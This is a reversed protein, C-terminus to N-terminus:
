KKCYFFNNVTVICTNKEYYYYYYYCNEKNTKEPSTHCHGLLATHTNKHHQRCVLLILEYHLM